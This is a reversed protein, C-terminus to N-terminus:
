RAPSIRQQSCHTPHSRRQLEARRDPQQKFRYSPVQQRTPTLLHSCSPSPTLILSPAVLHVFRNQYTTQRLPISYAAIRRSVPSILCLVKEISSSRIAEDNNDM